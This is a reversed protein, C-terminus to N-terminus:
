APGGIQATHDAPMKVHRWVGPLADAPDIFEIENGCTACTGHDGNRPEPGEEDDTEYGDSDDPERDECAECNAFASNHALLGGPFTGDGKDCLAYGTPNGRADLKERHLLEPTGTDTM